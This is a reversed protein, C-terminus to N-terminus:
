AATPGAPRCRPSAPRRPPRPRARRRHCGRRVPGGRLRTGPRQAHRCLVPGGGRLLGGPGAGPGRGHDRGPVLQHRRRGRRRHRDPVRTRGPGPRRGRGQHAARGTGGRLHRHQDAPDPGPGAPPGRGPGPGRDRGPVHGPRMRDRGPGGHPRGHPGRGRVLPARVAALRRDRLPGPRQRTGPGVPRGRRGRGGDRNGLRRGAASAVARLVGPSRHGAASRGGGRQAPVPGSVPGPRARYPDLLGRGAVQGARRVGGPDDVGVPAPRRGAPCAARRSLGTRQGARRAARRRVAPRGPRRAAGGGPCAHDQNLDVSDWIAM